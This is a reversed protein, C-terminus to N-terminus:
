AASSPAKKPRSVYFIAAVLAAATVLLTKEMALSKAKDEDTLERVTYERDYVRKKELEDLHVRGDREAFRYEERMGTVKEGVVYGDLREKRGVAAFGVALLALTWLGAAKKAYPAAHASTMWQWPLWLWGLFFWWVLFRIFVGAERYTHRYWQWFGMPAVAIPSPLSPPNSATIGSSLQDRFTNAAAVGAQLIQSLPVAIAPSGQSQAASSPDGGASASPKELSSATPTDIPFLGKVRGADCWPGDASQAVKSTASIKGAKALQKLQTSDLPGYVKGDKNVFWSNAM